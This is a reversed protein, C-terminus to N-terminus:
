DLTIGCVAMKLDGGTSEEPVWIGHQEGPAMHLFTGKTVKHDIGDVQIIGSGELVYFFEHLTKHSHPPMMTQGPKFTAVSYGVFNPVAFPELFQQKTIPRGQTDIHSTPREPVDELRMVMGKMVTPELEIETEAGQDLGGTRVFNENGSVISMGLTKQPQSLNRELAIGLCLGAALAIALNIRSSLSGTRSRIGTVDGPNNIPKNM